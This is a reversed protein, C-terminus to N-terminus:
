QGFWDQEVRRTPAKPCGGALHISLAIGWARGRPRDRERRRRTAATTAAAVRATMTLPHAKEPLLESRRGLPTRPTPNKSGAFGGAGSPIILGFGPEHSATRGGRPYWTTSNVAPSSGAVVVSTVATFCHAVVSCTLSSVTATVSALATSPITWAMSRPGSRTTQTPLASTSARAR